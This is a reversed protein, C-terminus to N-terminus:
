CVMKLSKLKHLSCGGEVRRGRARYSRAEERSTLEKIVGVVAATDAAVREAGAAERAKEAAKVGASDGVEASVRRHVAEVISEFHLYLLRQTNLKSDHRKLLVGIEDPDVRAALVLAEGEAVGLKECVREIRGTIAQAHKGAEISLKLDEQVKDGVNKAGGTWRTITHASFCVTNKLCLLLLLL